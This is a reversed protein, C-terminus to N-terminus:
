FDEFDVSGGTSNGGCSPYSDTREPKKTLQSEFVLKGNVLGPLARYNASFYDGGFMCMDKSKVVNTDSGCSIIEQTETGFTFIINGESPDTPEGCMKPVANGTRISYTTIKVM